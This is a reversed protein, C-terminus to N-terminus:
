FLVFSIKYKLCEYSRGLQELYEYHVSMFLLNLCIYSINKKLKIEYLNISGKKQHFYEAEFLRIFLIRSLDQIENHINLSDTLFSNESLLNAFLLKTKIM